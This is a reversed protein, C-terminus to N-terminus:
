QAASLLFRWHSFDGGVRFLVGGHDGTIVGEKGGTLQLEAIGAKVQDFIFVVFRGHHLTHHLLPRFDVGYRAIRVGGGKVIGKGGHLSGPLQQITRGPHKETQGRGVGIILDLRYLYANRGLEGLM